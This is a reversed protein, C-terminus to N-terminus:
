SVRQNMNASTHDVYYHQLHLHCRERWRESGRPVVETVNMRSLHDQCRNRWRESGLLVAETVNLRSLLDLNHGKHDSAADPNWTERGCRQLRPAMALPAQGCCEPLLIPGSAM